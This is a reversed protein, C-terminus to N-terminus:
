GVFYKVTTSLDVIIIIYILYHDNKNLFYIM